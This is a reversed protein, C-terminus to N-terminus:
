LLITNAVGGMDPRLSERQEVVNRIAQVVLGAAYKEGLFELMLMGAWIMAIPNAIRKDLYQASFRACM